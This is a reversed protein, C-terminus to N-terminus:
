DVRPPVSKLYSVIADIEAPKFHYRFGPMRETGNAIFARMAGENGGLSAGNLVPAYQPSAMQPKTHCVRCAQNFHRLGELQQSNLAPGSHQAAAPFSGAALLVLAAVRIM